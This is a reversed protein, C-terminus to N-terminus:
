FLATACCRPPWPTLTKPLYICAAREVDWCTWGAAALTRGDPSLALAYLQGEAALGAPVRFTDLLRGDAIRWVRITKDESASWAKGSKEDLVLAHIFATHRGTDIRLLPTTPLPSSSVPQACACLAGSLLLWALRATM